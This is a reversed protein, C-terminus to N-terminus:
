RLTVPQNDLLAAAGESVVLEGASLGSVVETGTASQRGTKVLRLKARGEEVVFVMEMQGRRAVSANPVCLAANEGVPWAVRGFQGARLGGRSPLDLKVLLTRSNSDSAPAIESVTGEMSGELSSVTVPLRDGMKIAGVDAEPVDAELRLDQSNEVELLAKGPAALYGVEAFKRTIVGEFPADIRTYALTTEAERSSAQAVKARAQASDFEATSLIGQQWLTTLRKLDAEAQDRVARIQELRAQVDAADLEVMREGAKVSQGPAVLLKEIRGSVKAEIVARQRARVTGVVAETAAQRRMEAKQVSVVAPAILPRIESTERHCGSVTFLVGTALLLALNPKM